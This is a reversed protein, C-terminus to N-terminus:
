ALLTRLDEFCRRLLREYDDADGGSWTTWATRMAALSALTVLRAQRTRDAAGATPDDHALRRTVIDVLEQEYGRWTFIRLGTLDQHDKLVRQRLVDLERDPESERVGVILIDRIDDLLEGTGGAVFQDIVEGGPPHPPDGLITREKSEFYNFFTRPSIDARESIEEITFGELRGREDLLELAAIQIARRTALRKRERLGRETSAM